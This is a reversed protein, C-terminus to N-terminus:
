SILLTVIKLALALALLKMITVLLPLEQMFGERFGRFFAELYKM